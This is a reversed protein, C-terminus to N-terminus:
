REFGPRSRRNRAGQRTCATQAAFGQHRAFENRGRLDLYPTGAAYEIGHPVSCAACTMGTVDFKQKMREGIKGGPRAVKFHPLDLYPTGAAYEIGHPVSCAACTMGTVDFKQKM